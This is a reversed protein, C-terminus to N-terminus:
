FLLDFSFIHESGEDVRGTAFAYDIALVQNMIKFVYGTGATFRKDSYGTRLAFEPSVFYEAGAHLRIGQDINKYLDSALLLKRNLFRASGGLGFEIPIADEQEVSSVGGYTLNYEASDWRYKAALNKIVAGVQVDQVAYTDRRERDFMQSLYLMAGIDITVSYAKMEAFTSHLYGARMGVSLYEEFQKALLITFAHSNLSLSEGLERGNSDRRMVDGSNFYHWNFGFVSEERTPMLFSVYGLKRDLQLARYSTAFLKKKLLAVGAPNFLPASGDNSVALYAGGMATPRAGIPIQFFSGAYGGDGDAAGAPVAALVLLLLAALLGPCGKRTTDMM